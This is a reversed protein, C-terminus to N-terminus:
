HRSARLQARHQSVPHPRPAVVAQDGVKELVTIDFNSDRQRIVYDYGDLVRAIVQSLSGSYSGNLEDSLAISARYSVNFAAALGSLVDGVSTRRVDLQMARADGRLHLFSDMAESPQPVATAAYRNPSPSSSTADAGGDQARLASAACVGLILALALGATSKVNAKM